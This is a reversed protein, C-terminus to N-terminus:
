RLYIGGGRRPPPGVGRTCPTCSIAWLSHKYLHAVIQIYTRVLLCGGVSHHSFHTIFFNFGRCNPRLNGTRKGSVNSIDLNIDHIRLLVRIHRLFGLLVLPGYDNCISLLRTHMGCVGLLVICDICKSRMFDDQLSLILLIGLLSTSQNAGGPGPM